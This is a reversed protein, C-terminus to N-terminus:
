FRKAEVPTWLLRRLRPDLKLWVSAGSAGPDDPGAPPPFGPQFQGYLPEPEVFRRKGGIGPRLLLPRRIGRRRASVHALLRVAAAAPRLLRQM